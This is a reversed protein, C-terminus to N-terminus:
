GAKREDNHYKRVKDQANVFLMALIPDFDLGAGDKIIKFCTDLDYAEKYCRKSSTAEFVDAIAMIRASLPIDEGKLGEPYGSGNWKEHHFKAVDHAVRKYEADNLDAFTEDLINSGITTHTKMINFEEETLKAPKCLIQDPIAIKGIDHMPAANLVDEIFDQTIIKSYKPDDRMENLIIEVYGKTHKIHNGTSADRSEVLTAFGTIMEENYHKLEQLAPDQFNVYLVAVAGIPLLATILAEPFVMQVVLLSGMYFMLMSLAKLKSKILTRRRVTFLICMFILYFMLVGYSIYVSIGMSYNTTKGHIYHLNKIYYIVLISTVIGPSMIAFLEKGNRIGVTQYVIFAFLVIIISDMSIFFAAHLVLNVWAPVTDLMNVTVATAGDFLAAVPAMFLIFAFLRDGYTRKGPKLNRIYAAIFYTCCLIAGAQLKFAYM